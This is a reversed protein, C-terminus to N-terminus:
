LHSCPGGTTPSSQLCPVHEQCQPQLLFGMVCRWVGPYDWPAGVQTTHAHWTRLIIWPSNHYETYRYMVWGACNFVVDINTYKKLIAEIATKDLVDLVETTVGAHHMLLPAHVFHSIVMCMHVCMCFTGLCVNTGQFLLTWLQTDCPFMKYVYVVSDLWSSLQNTQKHFFQICCLYVRTPWSQCASEVHM